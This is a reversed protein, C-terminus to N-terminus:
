DKYVDGSVDEAKGDIVTGDRREQLLNQLLEKTEEDIQIPPVKHQVAVDLKKDANFYKAMELFWRASDNGARGNDTMAVQIRKRIVKKVGEDVSESGTEEQIAEGALIMGKVARGQQMRRAREPSMKKIAGHTDRLSGDPYKRLEKGNVVVIEYKKAM